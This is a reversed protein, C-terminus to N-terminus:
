LLQKKYIKEKNIKRVLNNKYEIWDRKKKQTEDAQLKLLKEEEEKTRVKKINERILKDINGSNLKAERTAREPSIQDKHPRSAGQSSNVQHIQQTLSNKIKNFIVNM